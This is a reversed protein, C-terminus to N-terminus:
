IGLGLRMRAHINAIQAATLAAQAYFPGWPGGLISGTLFSAGEDLSGIAPRATLNEMAVYSADNTATSAVSSGNVYVTIGNAATVGGTGAYTVVIFNWVNQTIAADSARQAAVGASEDVLVLEIIETGSLRLEWERATAATNKRKSFLTSTASLNGVKLWLGISMTEAAADNRTWFGADPARILEDTGNFTLVPALGQWNAPNTLDFATDFASLAESPTWTPALGSANFRMGTFTTANVKGANGQDGFNILTGTAGLQQELLSYFQGWQAANKRFLSDLAPM